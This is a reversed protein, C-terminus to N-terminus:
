CSKIKNQRCDNKYFEVNQDNNYWSEMWMKFQVYNGLGGIHILFAIGITEIDSKNASLGLHTASSEDVQNLRFGNSVTSLKFDDIDLLPMLRGM